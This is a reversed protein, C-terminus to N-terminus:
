IVFKAAIWNNKKKNDVFQFGLKNCCNTIITLDEEYFGSLYLMGKPLLSRRYTEM